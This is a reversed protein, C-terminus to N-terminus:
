LLLICVLGVLKLIDGVERKIIVLDAQIDETTCANPELRHM